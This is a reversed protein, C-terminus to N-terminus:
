RSHVPRRARGAQLIKEVGARVMENVNTSASGGEFTEDLAARDWRPSRPGLNYSPKPIRGQRVLRPLADVRVSLYRAAAEADLWRPDSM